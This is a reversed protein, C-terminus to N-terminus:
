TYLLSIYKGLKEFIVGFKRRFYLPSIAMNCAAKDLGSDLKKQILYVALETM